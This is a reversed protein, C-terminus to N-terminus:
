YRYKKCVAGQELTFTAVFLKSQKNSLKPDNKQVCVASHLLSQHRHPKFESSIPGFKTMSNGQECDSFPVGVM